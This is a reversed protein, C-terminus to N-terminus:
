YYPMNEPKIPLSTPAPFKKHLGRNFNLYSKFLPDFCIDAGLQSWYDADVLHPDNHHIIDVDWCMLQMQLRTIAPNNGDYLLIIHIAYCDTVWM